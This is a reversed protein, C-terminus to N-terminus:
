NPTATSKEDEIWWSNFNLGFLPQQEPHKLRKWHAVWQSPAHFLPIVYDGSLLVRDLARVASTFDELSEASLMAAIMADVAPNKVGAYNYSGPTDAVASSWRYLQENGPSLRPRGPM